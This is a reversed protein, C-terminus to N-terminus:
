ILTVNVFLNEQQFVNKIHNHRTTKAAYRVIKKLNTKISFQAHHTFLKIDIM